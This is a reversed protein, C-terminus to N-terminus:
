SEPNIDEPEDWVAYAEDLKRLFEHRKRRYSERREDSMNSWLGRRFWSKLGFLALLWVLLPVRPRRRFWM